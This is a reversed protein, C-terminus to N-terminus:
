VGISSIVGIVQNIIQQIMPALGSAALYFGLVICLLASGLSLRYSRVLVVVAFSLLVIISISMM